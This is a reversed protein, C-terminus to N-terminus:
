TTIAAEWGDYEGQHEKARTGQATQESAIQAAAARAGVEDPFYLYFLHETPKSLDAGHERLSALLTADADDGRM